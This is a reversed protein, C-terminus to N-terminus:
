LQLYAYFFFLLTIGAFLRATLALAHNLNERRFVLRLPESTWPVWILSVLLSTSFIMALFSILLCFAYEWQGFRSGFRAVLTMKNAKTDQEMDRLNNVCLVACSLMGPILSIIWAEFPIRHLQALATCCTAVPGYFIFVLLDGFGLYGLPWKGGTYLLGCLICLLMLPFYGWGISAILPMATCAALSFAIIFANRMTKPAIMGTQVARAPGKREPTDAGKLFDFYDNAWNTGIQLFLSFLLCLVLVCFSVPQYSMAISTGIFVPSIGAILTKPRTSQLWILSKPIDQFALSTPNENKMSPM